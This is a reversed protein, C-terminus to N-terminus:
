SSTITLTGTTPDFSFTPLGDLKSKDTASMLGNAVPTATSKSAYKSSLTTGGETIYDTVILQAPIRVNGNSDFSLAKSSTPGLYMVNNAVQFYYPTLQNGSADIAQLGILPNTNGTVMIRGKGTATASTGGVVLGGIISQVGTNNTTVYSGSPQKGDLADQLGSVDAIAHPHVANAKNSAVTELASIADNNDDILDGLEKLTDYAAGAGNLLDNKVTAAASDAYTKASALANNAKTTADSSATSIASSKATDIASNRNVVEDKILDDAYAKASALASSAAGKADFNTTLVNIPTVKTKGDISSPIETVSTLVDTMGGTSLAVAQVHVLNKSWGALNAYVEIQRSASGYPRFVSILPTIHNDADGYVYCGVTGGTGNAVVNQSHIVITAHYTTSTTSNIEITINTDYAGFKGLCVKGNSGCALEASKEYTTKEVKGDLATQLGDVNAITHAHSDDNVTILGNSITVDGGTKVLGLSSGAESYTTNNDAGWVATGDASWRLIQGDSGGSPIHKNGTTTPHTYTYDYETMTYAGSSTTITIVKKYIKNSSHYINRSYKYMTSSSLDEVFYCYGSRRFVTKHPNEKLKTLQDTTLTGSDASLTIVTYDAPIDSTKAYDTLSNQVFTTIKSWFRKLGDLDLFKM